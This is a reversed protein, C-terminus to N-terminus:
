VSTGTRGNVNFLPLIGVMELMDRVKDSMGVLYVKKHSKVMKKYAVIMVRIGASSVYEVGGLDFEISDVDRSLAAQIKEEVVPSSTEDFNGELYLVLDKANIKETIKM